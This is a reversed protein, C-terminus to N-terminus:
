SLKDGHDQVVVESSVFDFGPADNAAGEDLRKLLRRGHLPSVIEATKIMEVPKAPAIAKRLRRIRFGALRLRVHLWRLRASSNEM